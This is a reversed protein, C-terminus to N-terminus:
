AVQQVGVRGRVINREVCVPRIHSFGPHAKRLRHIEELSLQDAVRIELDMWTNQDRGENLWSYVASLGNAAKWKVLPKGSS